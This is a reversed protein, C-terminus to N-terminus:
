ALRRRSLAAIAAGAFAIATTPEPVVFTTGQTLEGGAVQFFIELTSGPTLIAGSESGTTTGSVPGIQFDFDGINNELSFFSFTDADELSTIAFGDFDGILSEADAVFTGEAELVILAVEDAFVTVEGTLPNYETAATGPTLTSGDPLDVAFSVHAVGAVLGACVLLSAKQIPM